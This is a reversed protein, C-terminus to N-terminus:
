PIPPLMGNKESSASESESRVSRSAYRWSPQFRQRLRLAIVVALWASAISTLPTYPMWRFLAYHAWEGLMLGALPGFAWSWRAMGSEADDSAGEVAAIMMALDYTNLHPSLWLGLLTVAGFLRSPPQDRLRRVLAFCGAMAALWCVGVVASIARAPLQAWALLSRFNAMAQPFISLAGPTASLELMAVYGPIASTGLVAISAGWLTAVIAAALAIGSWWGLAMMVLAVPVALPPKAALVALAVGAHLPKGDEWARGFALWAVLWPLTLQGIGIAQLLPAFCALLLLVRKGRRAVLARAIWALLALQVVAWLIAAAAPPLLGLPAFALAIWPPYNFPLGPYSPQDALIARQDAIETPLDYLTAGDAGRDVLRGATLYCNFDGRLPGGKVLLGFFLAAGIAALLEWRIRDRFAPSM